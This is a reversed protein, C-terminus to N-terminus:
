KRESHDLYSQLIIVAAMQDIKQKRKKRSVNSEIMRREAEKSTLREDWMITKIEDEQQLLREFLLAREASIGIQNNMHKPLGIVVTGVHHEKILAAVLKAAQHYDENNFVVTQLPQAYFGQSLAIGVTKEGVDLGFFATSIM